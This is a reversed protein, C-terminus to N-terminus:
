FRLKGLSFFNKRDAFAVGFSKFVRAPRYAPNQKESLWRDQDTTALPMTRSKRSPVLLGM